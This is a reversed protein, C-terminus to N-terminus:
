INVGYVYDISIASFSEAGFNLSIKREVSRWIRMRSYMSLSVGIWSTLVVSSFTSFTIIM